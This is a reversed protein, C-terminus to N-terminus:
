INLERKVNRDRYMGILNISMCLVCQIRFPKLSVLLTFKTCKCDPSVHQFPGSRIQRIKEHYLSINSLSELYTEEWFIKHMTFFISTM